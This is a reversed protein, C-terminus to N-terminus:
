KLLDICYNFTEEGYDPMDDFANIPLKRSLKMFDKLLVYREIESTGNILLDDLFIYNSAEYHYEWPNDNICFFFEKGKLRHINNIIKQRHLEFSEGSVHLTFSYHMGWWCMNRFSFVNNQSFLRPFDLIIYPLGKYNEGKFIRGNISDAEKPIISSSNIAVNNLKDKLFHFQQQIKNTATNKDSFFQLNSLANQESKTLMIKSNNPM